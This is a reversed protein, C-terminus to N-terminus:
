AISIIIFNSIGDEAGNTIFGHHFRTESVQISFWNANGTKLIVLTDLLGRRAVVSARKHVTDIYFDPDDMIGSQQCWMSVSGREISFATSRKKSPFM